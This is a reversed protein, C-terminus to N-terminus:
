PHQLFGLSESRGCRGRRASRVGAPVGRTRPPGRSRACVVARRRFRSRWARRAQFPVMESRSSGTSKTAKAMAKNMTLGKAM